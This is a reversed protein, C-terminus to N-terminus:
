VAYKVVKGRVLKLETEETCTRRFVPYKPAKHLRVQAKMSISASTGPKLFIPSAFYYAFPNFDVGLIIGQELINNEVVEPNYLDPNTRVM